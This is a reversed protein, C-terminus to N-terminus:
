VYEVEVPPRVKAAMSSFVPVLAKAEPAGFGPLMVKRQRKHVDGLDYLRARHVVQWRYEINSYTGHAWTLGPGTLM